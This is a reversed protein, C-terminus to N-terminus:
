PCRRWRCASRRAPPSARRRAHVELHAALVREDDAGVDRGLDLDRRAAAGPGREQVGALHARAGLAEVHLALDVVVEQVREDVVRLRQPDAVREVRRGVDARHDAGGLAVLHARLDVGRHRGARLQEDAAVAGAVLAAVVVRGATTVPAGASVSRSRSSVNPGTAGITGTFRGRRPSRARWRCATRARRWRRCARGRSPSGSRRALQAGARDPDVVRQGVVVGAREAAILREPRPRSSPWSPSSANWSVLCTWM